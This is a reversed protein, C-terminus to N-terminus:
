STVHSGYRTSRRDREPESTDLFIECISIFVQDWHVRGKLGRSLFDLHGCHLAFIWLTSRKGTGGSPNFCLRNLDAFLFYTELFDQRMNLHRSPHMRTDRGFVLFQDPKNLPTFWEIYALPHSYTGFQPPLKFIVRIQAPRLGTM